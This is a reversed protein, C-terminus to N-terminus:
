MKATAVVVNTTIIIPIHVAFIRQGGDADDGDFNVLLLLQPTGVMSVMPVM